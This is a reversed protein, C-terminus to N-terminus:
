PYYSISSCKNDKIELQIKKRGKKYYSYHTGNVTFSSKADYSYSLQSLIKKCASETMGKKLGYLAYTESNIGEIRWAGKSNQKDKPCWLGLAYLTVTKENRKEIVKGKTARCGGAGQIYTDMKLKSVVQSLSLNFYNSLENKNTAVQEKVTVKCTANLRNSTCTILASGAKRATVLGKSNVTAISSNSSKWTMKSSSGKVTAKLQLTKDKYITASTRDLTISCNSLSFTVNGFKQPEVYLNTMHYLYNKKYNKNLYSFLEGATVITDKGSAAKGNYYGLAKLITDTFKTIIVKKGTFLSTIKGLKNYTLSYSSSQCATLVLFKNASDPEKRAIEVFNGSYCCDLIVVVKGKISKLDQYLTQFKYNQEDRTWIGFNTNTDVTGHGSYYFISLTNATNSSFTNSISQALKAYTPNTVEHIKNKDIRMGNVTLNKLCDVFMTESYLYDKADEEAGGNIALININSGAQTKVPISIFLLILMVSFILRFKNLHNSKKM